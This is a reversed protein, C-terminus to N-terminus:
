TPLPLREQAIMSCAPASGCVDTASDRFGFSFSGHFKPTGPKTMIEIRGKGPVNTEASYPDNNIPAEKIASASVGTGKMEVGDVIISVGSTAIGSHDLFPTLTAIYNQDLVPLHALTSRYRKEPFAPGDEASLKGFL